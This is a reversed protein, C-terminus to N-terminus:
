NSTEKYWICSRGNWKVRQIMSLNLLELLHDLREIEDDYQNIYLVIGKGNADGWKLAQGLEADEKLEDITQLSAAIAFKMANNDKELEEVRKHSEILQNLEDEIMYIEIEGDEDNILYNIFKKIKDGLM